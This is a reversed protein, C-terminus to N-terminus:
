PPPSSQHPPHPSYNSTDRIHDRINITRQIGRIM